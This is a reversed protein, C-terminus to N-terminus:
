VDHAHAGINHAQEFLMVLPCAWALLWVLSRLYSAPNSDIFCYLFIYILRLGMHIACCILALRHVGSFILAGLAAPWWVACDELMNLHCAQCRLVFKAERNGMLAESELAAIFLRPTKNDFKKKLSCQGFLRFVFPIYAMLILCPITILIFETESNFLEITPVMKIVGGLAM